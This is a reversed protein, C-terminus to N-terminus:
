QGTRAGTGPATRALIKGGGDVGFGEAGREAPDGTTIIPPLDHLLSLRNKPTRTIWQNLAIKKPYKTKSPHRRQCDSGRSLCPLGPQACAFGPTPGDWSAAGPSRRGPSGDKRSIM